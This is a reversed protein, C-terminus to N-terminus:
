KRTRIAVAITVAIMFIGVYPLLDSLMDVGPKIAGIYKSWAENTAIVIELIKKIVFLVAYVLLIMMLGEVAINDKIALDLSHKIKPLIKIIILYGMALVSLIGLSTIIWAEATAM